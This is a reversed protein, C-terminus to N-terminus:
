CCRNVQSWRRDLETRQFEARTQPAAGPHHRLVHAVYREYADDGFVARFAQWFRRSTIALANM